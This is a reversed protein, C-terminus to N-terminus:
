NNLDRLKLAVEDINYIKTYKVGLSDFIKFLKKDHEKLKERYVRIARRNLVRNTKTNSIPDIISANPNPTPNEEFIDRIIIAKVEYKQVLLSLDINDLFDGILFLLSKKCRKFIEKPIDVKIKKGIPEINLIRDAIKEISKFSNGRYEYLKDSIILSCFNVNSIQASYSLTANIYALIELKDGITFKGDVMSVVAVNLQKTEYMKKVYLENPKTSKLWFIHKIDDEAYERLEAFDYGYSIYKSLFEGGLSNFVDRKARFLIEGLRKYRM